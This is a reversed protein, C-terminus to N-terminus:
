ATDGTRIHGLREALEAPDLASLAVHDTDCVLVTRASRGYTCDILRGADRAERTLRKIPASEPSIVTLIREVALFNGFGIDLLRM